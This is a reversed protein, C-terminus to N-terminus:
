LVLHKLPMIRSLCGAGPLSSLPSRLPGVGAGGVGGRVPVDPLGEVCFITRNYILYDFAKFLDLLM